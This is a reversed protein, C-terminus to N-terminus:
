FLIHEKNFVNLLIWSLKALLKQTPSIWILNSSRGWSKQKWGFVLLEVSTEWRLIGSLSTFLARSCWRGFQLELPGHVTLSARYWLTNRPLERTPSRVKVTIAGAETGPRPVLIRCSAPRLWFFFLIRLQILDFYM